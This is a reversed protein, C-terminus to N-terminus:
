NVIGYLVLASAMGRNFRLFLKYEPNISKILKPIRRIKECNFGVTIAIKPMDNKLIGAAGQIAEEVGEYYNIKLMSIKEKYEFMSDLPEAAIQIVNAACNERDIGSIQEENCKFNLISKENWACKSSVAINDLKEYNIYTLLKKRNVGDPEVAYINKYKGCSEKVFIKITDGNYAGVDLYNEEKGIAYIDNDFFNMEESFVKLIYGSNGSLETKLYAIYTERSKEDELV